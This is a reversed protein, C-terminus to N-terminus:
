CDICKIVIMTIDDTQAVGISHQEVEQLIGSILDSAPLEIARRIYNMLHEETLEKGEKDLAESVGDTYMVLSDGSELQIEGEEYPTMTEMIGLIIGGKSLFVMEGNAKMVVPPNHGANTYTFRMSPVHLKGGFFTVFKDDNTNQHLLDNIRAVMTSLPLDLPALARLAAQTNAMLIAAPTGKGSVDAIAVLVENNDLSVIDYYDGGVQKSPINRAAIEVSNFAPISDPLLGQQIQRAINLEEELRKKELEENFLRANELASMATSALAELFNVDEISFEQQNLKKGIVLVGKIEKQVRMPLLIKAEAERAFSLLSSSLEVDDDVRVTGDVLCVAECHNKHPKLHLRNLTLEFQGDENKSFLAFRSVTLQGMLRYTLLRVIEDVDLLTTFERSMEFLTTLLQNKHEVFRKAEGLSRFNRANMLANATLTGVLSVYQMEEPNYTEGALNTGLCMMALDEDQFRLPLCLCFGQNLLMREDETDASLERVADINLTLPGEVVNKGKAIAVQWQGPHRSDPELVLAHFTRLKGMVTLLAANLIFKDDESSNLTASLDFLSTLNILNSTLNM